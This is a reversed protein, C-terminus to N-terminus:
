EAGDLSPLCVWHPIHPTLTAGGCLFPLPKHLAEVRIMAIGWDKSTSRLEGVEIADQSISAQYAPVEGSIHVPVLRKRVLGRYRTRATLEQGMYCGKQWDIANLEDFGCELLIGKDILVDRSGDPVGLKIRHYEYDEFPFMPIKLDNLFMNIKDQPFIVRVGMEVLRPDIFVVGGNTCKAVGKQVPLDFNEASKSGFVACVNFQDSVNEITVNSRLKYLSLRKLLTDVQARECDIFWVDQGDADQCAVIFLDYQFKGQPSLLAAFIAQDTNVKLADNTVLGQLFPAKDTGSLKIMGRNNLITAHVM